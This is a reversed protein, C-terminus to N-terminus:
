AWHGVSGTNHHQKAEKWHKLQIARLRHRLWENLNRWASPTKALGFYAKWILLYAKLRESMSRRCAEWVRDGELLQVESRESHDLRSKCWCSHVWAPRVYFLLIPEFGM